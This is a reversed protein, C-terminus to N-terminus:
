ASGVSRLEQVRLRVHAERRVVVCCADCGRFVYEEGCNKLVFRVSSTHPRGCRCQWLEPQM